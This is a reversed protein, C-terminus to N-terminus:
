GERRHGGDGGQRVQVGRGRRSHAGELPREMTAGVFRHHLHEILNRTFIIDLREDFSTKGGLIPDHAESVADVLHVVWPGGVELGESLLDGGVRAVFTQEAHALLDFVDHKLRDTGLADVGVDVEVRRRGVM